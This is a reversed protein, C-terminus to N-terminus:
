LRYLNENLIKNNFKKICVNRANKRIAVIKRQSLNSIKVIGKALDDVSGEKVLFGSEYNNILEPIGSHYTSLVILGSAMAEMLAVPVGEMDGDSARVSPLLFIDAFQLYDKVITQPQSGLLKIYNEAKNQRILNEVEVYDDGDGIITFVLNVEKKAIIIAKVSNLISKKETLRGVQIINLPSSFKKNINIIKFDDVNIGMRHVKIKLPDCGWEILKDKWLQSIPLFIECLKFVQKYQPLNKNVIDYRSMEYGHFVVSIPGSFLGLSRMKYVYYANDGFHCVINKYEVVDRNLNLIASFLNIKQGLSLYKDLLISIVDMIKRNKILRFFNLISILLKKFKSNGSYNCLSIVHDMLAYEKVSSHMVNENKIENTLISIDVGLDILGTIQNIIFTESIVPFSKSFIAVRM